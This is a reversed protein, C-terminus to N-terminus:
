WEFDLSTVFVVCLRRATHFICCRWFKFEGPQVAGMWGVHSMGLRFAVNRNYADASQGEFRQDM